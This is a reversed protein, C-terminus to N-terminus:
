LDVGRFPAHMGLFVQTHVEATTVQGSIQTGRMVLM